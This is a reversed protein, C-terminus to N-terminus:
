DTFAKFLIYAGEFALITILLAATMQDLLSKFLGLFIVTTVFCLVVGYYRTGNVTTQNFLIVQFVLFILTIFWAGWFAQYVSLASGVVDGSLLTNWGTVNVM